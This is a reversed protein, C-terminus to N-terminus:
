SWDLVNWGLEQATKRLQFTPSVAYPFRVRTLLDVDSHHDSYAYSARLDIGHSDCFEEVRQSKMRGFLHMGDAFRGSFGGVDFELPSALVFDAGLSDKARDFYIDPASTAIIIAHGQSKHWRIREAAEARVKGLLSLHVFESGLEDLRDREWGIFGRLCQLKADGLSIRRLKRLVFALVVNLTARDLFREKRLYFFLFHRFSDGRVLTGDFDFVAGIRGNGLQGM